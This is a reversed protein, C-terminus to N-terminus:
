IYILLFQCPFVGTTISVVLSVVVEPISATSELVVTDLPSTGATSARKRSTHRCRVWYVTLGDDDLM